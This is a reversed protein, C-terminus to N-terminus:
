VEAPAPLAKVEPKFTALYCPKERSVMESEMHKTGKSEGDWCLLAADAYDAMRSNREYGARKGLEPNNWDAPMKTVPLKYRQAFEEGLRDVGPACGSVIEIAKFSAAQYADEVKAYDKITRSGAIILKFARGNLWDRVDEIYEHIWAYQEPYSVKVEPPEGWTYYHTLPLTSSKLEERIWENQSIKCLLARKIEAEFDKIIPMKGTKSLEERIMRGYKKSQFGYMGRLQDNKGGTSLWYWFGEVSSFHGFLPHDFPTHAFNSLQQGLRTKAKALVNIHTVGDDQPRYDIRDLSHKVKLKRLADEYSESGNPGVMLERQLAFIVDLHFEKMKGHLVIETDATIQRFLNEVGADRNILKRILYKRYQDARDRNTILDTGNYPSDLPSGEYIFLEPHEDPTMPTGKGTFSSFTDTFRELATDYDSSGCLAEHYERIVAGHCPKPHCFCLLDTEPTLAKMASEIVPDREILKKALYSRYMAIVEPRTGHQGIVYPNGFPAGRGIYTAAKAEQPSATYKNLLRM